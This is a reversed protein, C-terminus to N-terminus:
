ADLVLSEGLTDNIKPLTLSIDVFSSIADIGITGINGTHITRQYFTDPAEGVVNMPVKGIFAFPDILNQMGLLAQGEELSQQQESKLLTFQQFESSYEALLEQAYGDTASMLNTSAQLMREAWLQGQASQTTFQTGLGVVALVVALILAVEVGVAEAVMTFAKKIVISTVVAKVLLTLLAMAVAGVSGASFANAIATGAGGYITLVIAVIIMITKFVGTQYWKLQTEVYSSMVYHISRSYLIEKEPLTFSGMMSRDLPILLIPSGAGGSYNYKGLVHYSVIPDRLQIEEYFVDNVQYQYTYTNGSLSGAFGGTKGIRGARRKKTIGQYAFSMRFRKDKIEIRRQRASSRAQPIDTITPDGLGLGGDAFYLLNFYQFLYKLDEQATSGAPIGFMMVAHVVDEIDPNGDIADAVAQYDMGLYKLMKRTIIYDDDYQRTPTAQNAFDYRFYVFPFYNGIETYEVRQIAEVEPLTNSGLRYDWYKQVQVGNQNYSYMAQYYEAVPDFGSLDLLFSGEKLVPKFHETGYALDGLKESDEYVYEVRVKDATAETDVEYDSPLIYKGVEVAAREPTYGAKPSIGWQEFRSSDAADITSQAYIAVLDKLYVPTGKQASLVGLQNSAWDYQHGNTLAKWAAHIANIPAFHFYELTVAKGTQGSIVSWVVDDGDLSTNLTSSPLGYPYLRKAYAYMRDGRVAVSGLMGDVLNESIPSEGLLARITSSKPTAPLQADEIARSVSTSVSVQKRGSFLGM